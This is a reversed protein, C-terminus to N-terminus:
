GMGICLPRLGLFDRVGFVAESTMIVLSYAGDAKEMFASIRAEWSDMPAVKSPDDKTPPPKPPNAALMQTIIEVDSTKFM